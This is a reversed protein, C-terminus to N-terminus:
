SALRSRIRERVPTTNVYRALGARDPRRVRRRLLAGARTAYDPLNAALLQLYQM